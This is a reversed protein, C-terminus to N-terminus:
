VVSRRARMVAMALVFVSALSFALNIWVGFRPDFGLARLETAKNADIGYVLELTTGVVGVVQAILLVFSVAIAWMRSALLSCAILLLLVAPILFIWYPGSGQRTCSLVAALTALMAGLLWLAAVAHRTPANFVALLFTKLIVM